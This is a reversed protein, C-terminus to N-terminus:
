ISTPNQAQCIQRLDFEFQPRASLAGGDSSRGCQRLASPCYGALPKRYRERLAPHRRLNRRGRRLLRNFGRREVGLRRAVTRHPLEVLEVALLAAVQRAEGLRSRRGKHRRGFETTQVEFVEAVAKLVQDLTPAPTSELGEPWIEEVEVSLARTLKFLVDLYLRYKGQELSRCSEEAVGSKRALERVSLGRRIRLRKLAVRVKQNIIGEKGDEEQAWQEAEEESM